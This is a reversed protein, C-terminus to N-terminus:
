ISVASDFDEELWGEYSKKIVPAGANTKTLLVKAGLSKLKQALKKATLLALEGENFEIEQDIGKEESPLMHVYKEELRAFKGGMHGPDIAVRLGKLPTHPNEFSPFIQVAKEKTGFRLTFEPLDKLKDEPSAYITLTESSVKYWSSIEEDGQLTKKNKDRGM